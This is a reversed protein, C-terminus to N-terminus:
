ISNDDTTVTSNTDDCLCFSFFLMTLLITFFLKSLASM